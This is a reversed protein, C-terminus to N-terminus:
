QREGATNKDSNDHADCYICGHSGANAYLDGAAQDEHGDSTDVWQGPSDVRGPDGPVPLWAAYFGDGGFVVISRKM